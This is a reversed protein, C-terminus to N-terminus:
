GQVVTVMGARREASARLHTVLAFLGPLVFILVSCLVVAWIEGWGSPEYPAASFIFGQSLLKDIAEVVQTTNSHESHNAQSDLVVLVAKELEESTLTPSFTVAIRSPSNTPVRTDLFAGSANYAQLLTANSPLM